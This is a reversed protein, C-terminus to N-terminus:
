YAPTCKKTKTGSDCTLVSTMCTDGVVLTQRLQTAGVAGSLNVNRGQVQHKFVNSQSSGNKFQVRKLGDPDSEALTNDKFIARVRNTAADM